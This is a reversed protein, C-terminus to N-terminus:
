SSEISELGQAVMDLVKIKKVTPMQKYKKFTKEDLNEKLWKELPKYQFGLIQFVEDSSQRKNKM